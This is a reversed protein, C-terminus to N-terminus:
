GVKQFEEELKEELKEPIFERSSSLWLVDMTKGKWIYQFRRFIKNHFEVKTYKVSSSIMKEKVIKM